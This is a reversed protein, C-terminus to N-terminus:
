LHYESRNFVKSESFNWVSRIVFHNSRIVFNWAFFLWSITFVQCFLMTKFVRSSENLDINLDFNLKFILLWSKMNYINSNTLFLYILNSKKKLKYILKVLFFDSGSKVLSKNYILCVVLVRSSEEEKLPCNSLCFDFNWQYSEFSSKVPLFWLKKQNSEKLPCNSLCFDFNKSLKREFSM